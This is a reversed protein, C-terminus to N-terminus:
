ECASIGEMAQVYANLEEPALGHDGYWVSEFVRLNAHFASVLDGRAHDLRRLERVYERNSKYAAIRIFSLQALRALGAFFYARMALRVEGRALLEAALKLWENSALADATTSEDDLDPPAARAEVASTEVVTTRRWTKWAVLLLIGLLVALLVSATLRLIRDAVAGTAARDRDPRDFLNRLWKRLGELKDDIWAGTREVADAIVSFIGNEAAEPRQRPMRWAFRSDHLTSEIAQDLKAADVGAADQAHAASTCLLGAAMALVIVARQAIRAIKIRLDKGTRVSDGYFCRLTFAIKVLPDLCLYTMGSVIVFFTPNMAGSPSISFATEIGFLMQLLAPVMLLAVGINAAVTLAFPSLPLLLLTLAMAYLGVISDTWEPAFLRMIPMIILFFVAAVPAAAPCILWLTVNSQSANLGAQARAERFLERPDKRGDDLATVNQYVAYMWGFPAVVFLTLPLLLFGTSQVVAQNMVVGALQPRPADIDGTAHALVRHAFLVHGTKAAVFLVSLGLAGPALREYAFAHNAMDAWFYLFAIVFPFTAGYYIAWASLPLSKATQFVEELLAVAGASRDARKRSM